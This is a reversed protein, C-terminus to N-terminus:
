GTSKMKELNERKKLKVPYIEPIKWYKKIKQNMVWAWIFPKPWAHSRPENQNAKFSTGSTVEWRVMSGKISWYAGQKASFRVMWTLKLMFYADSFYFCFFISFYWLKVRNFRFFLSFKPFFFDVPSGSATFHNRFFTLKIRFISNMKELYIMISITVTEATFPQFRPFVIVVSPVAAGTQFFCHATPSLIERM